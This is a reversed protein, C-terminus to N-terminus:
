NEKLLKEHYLIGTDTQIVVIYVGTSLNGLHLQPRASPMVEDVIKRGDMAYLMMHLQKCTDTIYISVVDSAPNPYLLMAHPKDSYDPNFMVIIKDIKNVKGGPDSNSTSVFIKGDPSICLDRLRGYDFGQIISAKTIADYSDNLQLQYLHKDKLTTLILSNQLWPFTPHRYYDIGCPAITPTWAMLPLTVVSDNCFSLEDPENCYGKVNPWGYNKGKTIINIEDDKEPGHESSYLINNAYVFGQPNRHGWTWVPSGPIPNDVPITGDLNLRLIKGNISNINQPNTYDAADAASIFLKDEVILLRCGNHFLYGNISDLLILPSSLKKEAPFYTYRVVQEFIMSSDDQYEWALYVYPHNKFDPHLAMGLMGSEKITVTRPEHFLTDTHMGATDMRCVYGNKQTFWIHDDPGYVLEWPIFLSDKLVRTQFGSQASGHFHMCAFIFLLLIAKKM